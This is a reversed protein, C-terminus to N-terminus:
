ADSPSPSFERRALEKRASLEYRALCWAAMVELLEPRFMRAIPLGNPPTTPHQLWSKKVPPVMNSEPCTTLHYPRCIGHDTLWSTVIGNVLALGGGPLRAGVGAGAVGRRDCPLGPEQTLQVQAARSGICRRRRGRAELLDERPADGPALAHELCAVWDAVAYEM